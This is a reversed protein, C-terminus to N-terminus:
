YMYENFAGTGYNRHLYQHHIPPISDLTPITPLKFRDCGALLVTLVMVISMRFLSNRKM